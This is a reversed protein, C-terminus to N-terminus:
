PAPEGDGGRLERLLWARAYRWDRDVTAPAINLAEATQDISLGTYFRLHVVSAAQPDHKRLAEIADDIEMAESISEDNALNVVSSIDRRKGGGGRKKTGARRAYDILVHRMAEAAAAYFHARDAWPLDRGVLKLFAEHVLATAQITHSRRIPGFQHRAIDRLSRYVLPLLERAANTGGAAAEALLRTVQENGAQQAASATSMGPQSSVPPNEPTDQM